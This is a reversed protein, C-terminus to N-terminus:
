VEPRPEDPSYWKWHSRDHLPTHCDPCMSTTGDFTRGSDPCHYEINAAAYANWRAAQTTDTNISM